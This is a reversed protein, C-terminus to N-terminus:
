AKGTRKRRREEMYLLADFAAMVASEKTPYNKRSRKSDYPVESIDTIRISWNGPDENLEITFRNVNVQCIRKRGGGDADYAARKHPDHLVEYAAVIEKFREGGTSDNPNRDPHHRLAQRRYAAKIAQQDAWRLVGLVEYHGRAAVWREDWKRNAWRVRRKAAGKYKRERTYAGERDQEMKAACECGVRLVPGYEDHKLIHVYRITQSECMECTASPEELDAFDVCKWGRHPVGADSWKGHPRKPKGGRPHRM